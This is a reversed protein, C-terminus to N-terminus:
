RCHLNSHQFQYDSPTLKLMNRIHQHMSVLKLPFVSHLSPRTSSILSFITVVIHKSHLLLVNAGNSFIYLLNKTKVDKNAYSYGNDWTKIVKPHWQTVFSRLIDKTIYHIMMQRGFWWNHCLERPSQSLSGSSKQLSYTNTHINTRTHTREHTKYVSM